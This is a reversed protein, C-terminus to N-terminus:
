SQYSRQLSYKDLKKSIEKLTREISSIKVLFFFLMGLLGLPIVIYFIPVLLRTLSYYWPIDMYDM